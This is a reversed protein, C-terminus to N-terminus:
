SRIEKEYIALSFDEKRKIAKFVDEDVGGKVVLTIYLNRQPNDIRSIRGIAQVFDKYSFSLSAFVMVRFSPLQYGESAMSNALVVARDSMEAKLVVEDKDKVSGNLVFVKTDKLSKDKLIIDKLFNLQDNYRCFIVIKKNEAILEKIREVKGSPYLVTETYEDGILIGNEVTHKKTWRVIFETEQIDKIGKEQEPTLDFYETEFVQEPLDILDELKATSGITKVLRALKGEVGKKVKPILRAGMRIQDFFEVFFHWYNWDYGLHKALAFINMPTSLYPTATALWRYTTDYKKFYKQLAKSLQSKLNAFAHAEDVIVGEYPPLTDHYKKFEEKTLVEWKIKCHEALNRQWNAKLAKPCIVLVSDCNKNALAITMITKGCGTGWAILHRAPNKNLLEQQHNYLKMEKFM